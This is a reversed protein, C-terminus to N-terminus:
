YGPRSDRSLVRLGWGSGVFYINSFALRQAMLYISYASHTPVILVKHEKSQWSRGHHLARIGM